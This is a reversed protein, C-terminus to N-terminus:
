NKTALKYGGFIIMAYKRHGKNRHGLPLRRFYCNIKPLWHAPWRFHAIKPPQCMAVLFLNNNEALKKQRGSVASFLGLAVSFLSTEAAYASNEAVLPRRFHSYSGYHHLHTWWHVEHRIKICHVM